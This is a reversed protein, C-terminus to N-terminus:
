VFSIEDIDNKGRRPTLIVPLNGNMTVFFDRLNDEWLKPEFDDAFRMEFQYMMLCILIRMEQYALTKGVCMSPGFSFPIFATTDHIATVQPRRCPPTNDSPQRPLWREPIFVEPSPFFYRPDRHLSYLHIFASTGEPIFSCSPTLTKDIAELWTL